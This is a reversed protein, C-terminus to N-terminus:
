RKLCYGAKKILFSPTPIKKDRILLDINNIQLVSDQSNNKKCNTYQENSYCGGSTNQPFLNRQFIESFECSFVQALTEKKIFECADAQLKILFSVRACINEGTNQSIKLFVKKVSCRRVVAINFQLAKVIRYCFLYQMLSAFVQAFKIDMGCKGLQKLLSQSFDVLHTSHIRPFAPLFSIIM